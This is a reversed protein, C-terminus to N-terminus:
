NLITFPVSAKFAINRGPNLAFGKYRSLHDFYAEDFVNEVILDFAVRTPGFEMTGGLGADFLMYAPSSVEFPGLRNQQSVIRTRIFCSPGRIGLFERGALQIGLRLRNAPILPLPSRTEDNTGRVLDAGADIILWSLLTGRLWWEGGVLSANAQQYRYVDLSNIQYGAPAPFIYQQISTRFVSLETQLLPSSYRLSADLNLSEEPRLAANGIKYRVAGEDSGNFFLEAAVPARWGRGANLAITFEDAFSWAAGGTATFSQFRLTQSANGIQANADVGLARSDYRLGGTFRVAGFPQYVEYLYGGLSLTQFAPIIAKRGETQNTQLSGTAGVTGYFNGFPLHHVKADLTMTNLILLAEPKIGLSEKKKEDDESEKVGEEKRSNRQYSALLELRGLSTSLLAGLTAREHLIEQHPAAPLSDYVGTNVNYEYEKRGPEPAIKYGQGFHAADLYLAGWERNMGVALSGNFETAGSNFVVGAPVPHGDATRGAPASYDGAVRTTFNARYGFGGGVGSLDISGAGQPNNSFANFAVSGRLPPIGEGDSPIDKRVANVVGGMAESGYLVSAAGRVIEIRDADFINIEPSQPEDWTQSELREGNSLIVVRQGTLGRIVPKVSFPGGSFGSVGPANAITQGLSSGRQQDLTRADLVTTPLTVSRIVAPQSEATVTIVPMELPSSQLVIVLPARAPVDVQASQKAYGLLSAEIVYRGNPLNDFRFAGREDSSTWKELAPLLVTASSLVTGNEDQITGSIGQSFAPFSFLFVFCCVFGPLSRVRM